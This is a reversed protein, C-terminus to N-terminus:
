HKPGFYGDRLQRLVQEPGGDPGYFHRRGEESSGSDVEWADNIEKETPPTKEEVSDLLQKYNSTGFRWVCVRAFLAFQHDAFKDLVPSPLRTHKFADRFLNRWTSPGAALVELLMVGDAATCVMKVVAGMQMTLLATLDDRQTAQNSIKV